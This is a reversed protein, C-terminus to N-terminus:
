SSKEREVLRPSPIRVPAAPQDTVEDVYIPVYGHRAYAELAVEVLNTGKAVVRGEHIAVYQGRDTKLLDPLLRLFATYERQWKSEAPPPM